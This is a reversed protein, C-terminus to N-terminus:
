SKPPLHPLRTAAMKVFTTAMRVSSAAGQGIHRDEQSMRVVNLTRLSCHPDLSHRAEFESSQQIGQKGM